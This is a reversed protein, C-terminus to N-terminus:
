KATLIRANKIIETELPPKSMIIYDSINKFSNEDVLQRNGTIFLIPVKFESNIREAAYIGNEEGKLLVDMIIIGPREQLAIRIAEKASPVIGSVTYGAHEMIMKLELGIIVEDEVIIMANKKM